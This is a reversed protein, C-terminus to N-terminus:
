RGLPDADGGPVALSGPQGGPIRVVRADAGLGVVRVLLGERGASLRVSLGDIAYGLNSRRPANRPCLHSQRPQEGLRDDRRRDDAGGLEVMELVSECGHVHFKGDVLNSRELLRVHRMRYDTEDLGAELLRNTGCADGKKRGANIKAASSSAAPM